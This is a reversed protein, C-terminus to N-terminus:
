VRAKTGVEVSANERVNLRGIAGRSVCMQHSCIAFKFLDVSFLTLSILPPGRCSCCTAATGTAIAAPLMAPSGWSCRCWCHPSMSLRLLLLLLLLWLQQCCCHWQWHWHWPQCCIRHTRCSSSYMSANSNCPWNSNCSGLTKPPLCLTQM